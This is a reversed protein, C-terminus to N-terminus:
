PFYPVPQSKSRLHSSVSLDPYLVAPMFYVPDKNTPITDDTKNKKKIQSDSNGPKCVNGLAHVFLESPPGMIINASIIVHLYLGVVKIATSSFPASGTM